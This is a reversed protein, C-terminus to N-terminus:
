TRATRQRNRNTSWSIELARRNMIWFSPIPNFLTTGNRTALSAVWNATRFTRSRTSPAVARAVSPISRTMSTTALVSISPTAKKTM